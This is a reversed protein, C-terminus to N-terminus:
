QTLGPGNWEDVVIGLDKLAKITIELNRRVEGRDQESELGEGIAVVRGYPWADNPLSSLAKPLDELSLNLVQRRAASTRTLGGRDVPSANEDALYIRMQIMNRKVSLFPNLWQPEQRITLYINKSPPPIETLDQRASTKSAQWAANNDALNFTDGSHRCGDVLVMSSLALMTWMATRLSLRMADLIAAYARCM